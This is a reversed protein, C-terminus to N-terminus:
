KLSDYVEDIIDPQKPVVPTQFAREVDSFDFHVEYQYWKKGREPGLYYDDNM